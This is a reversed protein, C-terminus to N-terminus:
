FAFLEGAEIAHDYLVIHCNPYGAVRATLILGSDFTISAGSHLSQPHHSRSRSIVFGGSQSCADLEIEALANKYRKLQEPDLNSKGERVQPPTKPQETSSFHPYPAAPPAATTGEGQSPGGSQIARLTSAVSPLTGIDPQSLPPGALRDMLSPASGKWHSIAVIAAAVLLVLTIILKKM